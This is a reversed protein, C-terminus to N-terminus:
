SFAKRKASCCARVLLNRIASGRWTGLQRAALRRHDRLQSVGANSQSSYHELREDWIKALHSSSGIEAHGGKISVFEPQDAIERWRATVNKELKSPQSTAVFVLVPGAYRAPRYAEGADFLAAIFKQFYHPFNSPDIMTHVGHRPDIVVEYLGRETLIKREKRKSKVLRVFNIPNPNVRLEKCVRNWIDRKLRLSRRVRFYAFKIRYIRGGLRNDAAINRPGFDVITLLGVDRGLRKLQQAMELAVIAGVSMGLLHLPGEPQAEVIADVYRGAISEISNAFGIDDGDAPASFSLLQRHPLHGALHV